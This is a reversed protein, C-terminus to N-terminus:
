EVEPCFASILLVGVDSGAMYCTLIQTTYSSVM